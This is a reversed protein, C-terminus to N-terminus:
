RTPLYEISLTDHAPTWPALIENGYDYVVVKGRRTTGIQRGDRLMHTWKPHDNYRNRLTTDVEPMILCPMEAIKVIRCPALAGQMHEEAKPNYKGERHKFMSAENVCDQIGKKIRPVKLVWKRNPRKYCARFSGKAVFQWGPIRAKEFQHDFQAYSWDDRIWDFSSKDHIETKVHRIFDEMSLFDLKINEFM